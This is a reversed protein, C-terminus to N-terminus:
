CCHGLLEGVANLGAKVILDSSIVEYSKGDIEVTRCNYPTCLDCCPSEGVKANLYSEIGRGNILIQNSILPDKKFEEYSIERKRLIVKIGLPLLVERLKSVAKELELETERCRQCTDGNEVLRRWEIWLVKERADSCCNM